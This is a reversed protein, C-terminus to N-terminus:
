SRELDRRLIPRRHPKCASAPGHWVGGSDLCAKVSHERRLQWAVLAALAVTTLAAITLRQPSM